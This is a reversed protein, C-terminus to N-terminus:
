YIELTKDLNSCQPKIIGDYIWDTIETPTQFSKIGHTKYTKLDDNLSPIPLKCALVSGYWFQLARSHDLYLRDLFSNGTIRVSALKDEEVKNRNIKIEGIIERLGKFFSEDSTPINLIRFKQIESTQINLLGIRKDKLYLVRKLLDKGINGNAYGPGVYPDLLAVVQPKLARKLKSSTIYEALKIAVHAGKSFGAFHPQPGHYDQFAEQYFHFMNIFFDSDTQDLIIDEEMASLFLDLDLPTPKGQNNNVRMLLNELGIPNPHRSDWMMALIEGGILDAPPPVSVKGKSFDLLGHERFVMESTVEFPGERNGQQLGHFILKIGAPNPSVKSVPEWSKTTKSYRMLKFTHDSSAFVGPAEIRGLRVQAGGVGMLIDSDKHKHSQSSNLCGGM